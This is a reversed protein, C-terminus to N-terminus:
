PRENVVILSKLSKKKSNEANKRTNINDKYCKSKNSYYIYAKDYTLVSNILFM